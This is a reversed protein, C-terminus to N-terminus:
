TVPKFYIGTNIQASAPIQPLPHPQAPPNYHSCLWYLHLSTHDACRERNNGQKLPCHQPSPGPSIDTPLRWRQERCGQLSGLMLADQMSKSGISLTLFAALLCPAAATSLALGAGDRTFAALALGMEM